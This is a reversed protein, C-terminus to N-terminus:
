RPQLVGTDRYIEAIIAEIEPEEISLDRITMRSAVASILDPATILTSDFRLWVRSGEHRILEVRGITVPPAENLPHDFDVVLTRYAGFRRRIDSISGDFVIRGQDIIILRRCLREVDDMDHTTLMITVEREANVVALFELIRGKAIVDLGITPEDLYLLSPDHLLAAALDGRMRQGLSLQRVPTTLFTDLDLLERFAALNRAFREEPVRYM